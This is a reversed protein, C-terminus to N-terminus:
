EYFLTRPSPHVNQKAAPCISNPARRLFALVFLGERYRRWEPKIQPQQAGNLAARACPQRSLQCHLLQVTRDALTSRTGEHLFHAHMRCRANCIDDVSAHYQLRTTRAADRLRSLIDCQTTSSLPGRSAASSPACASTGRSLPQPLATKFPSYSCCPQCFFKKKEIKKAGRQRSSRTALRSAARCDRIKFQQSGKKRGKRTVCVECSWSVALM